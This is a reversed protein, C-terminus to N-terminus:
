RAEALADQVLEDLVEYEVAGTVVTGNIIFAPISRLGVARVAVHDEEIRANMRGEALCQRFRPLDPVGVREAIMPWPSTELSEPEAFLAVHYPAFKDQVAACEAAQAAERAHPHIEDLVFHRYTVAVEDGYESQIKRVAPQVRECFPCEYDYFKVIQVPAERSGVRNGTQTLQEWDDYFGKVPSETQPWLERKVVLGTVVLACVVLIATFVTPLNDKNV